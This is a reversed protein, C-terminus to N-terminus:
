SKPKSVTVTYYDYTLRTYLGAVSYGINFSKSAAGGIDVTWEHVAEGVTAVDDDILRVPVTAISTATSRNIFTLTANRIDGPSVDGNAEATASIDRVTARLTVTATTCTKCATYVTVGYGRSVRADERVISMTKSLEPLVFNPADQNFVATIYRVGGPMTALVPTPLTAKGDIVDASGITITGLKFTVSKAANAPSVTATFTVPDSYQRQLPAITFSGTAKAQAVVQQLVASESRNFSTSGTYVAIIRRSGAPTASIPLVAGGDLDLEAEGLLAAGDLFHVKGSPVGGASTVKATYVIQQGYTSSLSSSTLGTATEFPTARWYLEATALANTNSDFGGAVLAGGAPLRVVGPTVRAQTLAADDTFSSASPDYSETSSLAGAADRGGVALVSGDNLLVAGHDYRGARMRGALQFEQSEVDFVEADAVPNGEENLGGTVLVRGDALATAAHRGRGINMTGTPRFGDLAPYYLDATAAAGSGGTLLVTGNPLATATGVRAASMEGTPTSTHAGPDYIEASSYAAKGNHGGAVLVRGDSLLAAAPHVRGVLLHGASKFVGTTADYLEVSSLATAGNWGGLLLVRREDLRVLAANTRPEILPASLMFRGSVSDYLEAYGSSESGGALLVTGDGLEAASAAGRAATMSDTATFYTTTQAYQHSTGGVVLLVFIAARSAVSLLTRKDVSM